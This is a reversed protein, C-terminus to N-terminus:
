PRRSRHSLWPGLGQGDETAIFTGRANILAEDVHSLCGWVTAGWTDALKVEAPKPCASGDAAGIQCSAPAGGRRSVAEAAQRILSFRAQPGTTEVRADAAIATRQGVLVVNGDPDRTRLEGGPAHEPYGAMEYEHGAEDLRDRVAALDTVYLYILLPLEVQILPPQVGALLLTHEGCQLYSWRAAGDGGARSEGYGFLAYFRRASEISRVYLVPVAAQVGTQM